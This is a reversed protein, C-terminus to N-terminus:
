ENCVAQLVARHEMLNDVILRERKMLKEAVDTGLNDYVYDVDVQPLQAESVLPPVDCEPEVYVYEIRKACGVMGGIILAVVM